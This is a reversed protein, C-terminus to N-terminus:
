CWPRMRVLWCEYSLALVAGSHGHRLAGAAASFGQVSAAADGSGAAPSVPQQEFFRPASGAPDDGHTPPTAYESPHRALDCPETAAELVVEPQHQALHQPARPAAHQGSEHASRAHFPPFTAAMAAEGDGENELSQSDTDHRGLLGGRWSFQRSNAALPAPPLLPPPPSALVAANANTRAQQEGGGQAAANPPARVQRQAQQKRVALALEALHSASVSSVSSVTSCEEEETNDVSLLAGDRVLASDGAVEASMVAGVDGRGKGADGGDAQARARDHCVNEWAAMISGGAVKPPPAPPPPPRQSPLNRNYGKDNPDPIEEDERAQGGGQRALGFDLLSSAFSDASVDSRMGSGFGQRDHGHQDGVASSAFSHGSYASAATSSSVQSALSESDDNGNRRQAGQPGSPRERRREKRVDKDREQASADDCWASSRRSGWAHEAGRGDTMSVVAEKPELGERAALGYENRLSSDAGKSELYEGLEASVRM